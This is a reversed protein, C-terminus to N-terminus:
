SGRYIDESLSEEIIDGKTLDVFLVKGTYGGPM